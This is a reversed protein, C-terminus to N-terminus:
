YSIYYSIAYHRACLSRKNCKPLVKRQMIKDRREKSEGRASSDRITAKM